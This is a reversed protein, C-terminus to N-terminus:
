AGASEFLVKYNDPILDNALLTRNPWQLAGKRGALRPYNSGWGYDEVGLVTIVFGSGCSYKKEKSKIAVVKGFKLAASRGMLHAYVIFDGVRVINGGKDLYSELQMDNKAM